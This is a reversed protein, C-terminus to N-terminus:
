QKPQTQGNNTGGAAAGDPKAKDKDGQGDGGGEPTPPPTPAVYKGVYITVTTGKKVKSGAGPTFSLVKGNQSEDTVDKTQVSVNLGVNRIATTAADQTEGSVSPVSVFEGGAVRITVTSGENVTAGAGPSISTVKGVQDESSADVTEINVKLNASNLQEIASDKSSGVVNPVTVKKIEPGKSVTLTIDTDETVEQGKSPNQSMVTGAGYSSSYEESVSINTLGKSKLIAKADELSEEVVNPVEVKKKGASVTVKVTSGEKVTDGAKPDMNLVTGEEKGSNEKKIDLTLDYKKAEVQADDIKMGVFNPLKVDKPKSMKSLAFFGGAGVALIVVAVVIGIIIKKISNKERKEYDDEDKKVDEEEEAEDEYEDYDDFFDDDEDLPNNNKYDEENVADMVITHQTTAANVAKAGLVIDPNEKIKQLDAIVDKADQYRKNQDKEMCKLILKNLSEPVKPNLEKPPVPPEQIHKLAITVPSDANFPMQGTVMEYMVVGLSYIDTRKDIYTGKAQEPSFYHASGLVTSTNTLTASGSSKAIGFDTVKVLGSETVLINQPKIDRHVIGNRHACDLARAVQVAITIATDYNMKGFDDIVDKLTKGDVFEMVIYNVNDQCGVDLVNVINNDSLTAIATAEKKFKDVIDENDNYESKLIKVAVFRNLKNCRAKYVVAMGGEGVKELLEYRGGLIEGNM